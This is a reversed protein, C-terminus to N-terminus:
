MDGLANTMRSKLLLRALALQLLRPPSLLQNLLDALSMVKRLNIM